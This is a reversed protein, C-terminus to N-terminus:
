PKRKGRSRNRKRLYEKLEPLQELTERLREAAESYDVSFGYSTITARGDGLDTEIIRPGGM